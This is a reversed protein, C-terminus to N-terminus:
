GSFLRHSLKHTLDYIKHCSKCFAIYDDPNRRYKGDINAWHISKPTTRRFGCKSCKIPIGKIRRLWYHLGRYGVNEGKWFHHKTGTAMIEPHYKTFPIHGKHFRNNIGNKSLEKNRIISYCKRSCYKGIGIKIRCPYTFFTKNCIICKRKIM